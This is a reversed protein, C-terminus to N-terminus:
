AAELFKKQVLVNAEADVLDKWTRELTVLVSDRGSREDAEAQSLGSRSKMVQAVRSGGEFLPLSVSFGASWNDGRPPWSDDSRGLGGNLYVKPLFDAESSNLDFRAAEKKAALEELLPTTDVLTDLDPKLAYNGGLSFKVDAKMQWMRDVGLAKCLERQSVSVSREAQSIEFEAQAMDAEAQFLAGRHERGSEYRLRVLGLNQKRREAISETIGILEQARMLTVYAARLDLRVNSSVVTYNYRSAQLLKLASTVESSTKFGDFVLQRGTLGLSYANGPKEGGGKM